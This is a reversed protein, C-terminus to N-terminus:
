NIPALPSRNAEKGPNAKGSKNAAQRQVARANKERLLRAEERARQIAAAELDETTVGKRQQAQSLQHMRESMEAPVTLERVSKRPTRIGSEASQVTKDTAASASPAQLQQVATDPQPEATRGGRKADM